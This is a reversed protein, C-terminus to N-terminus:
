SCGIRQSTSKWGCYGLKKTVRKIKKKLAQYRMNDWAPIHMSCAPKGNSSHESCNEAACIKGTVSTRAAGKAKAKPKPKGANEAAKSAATKKKFPKLSGTLFEDESDVEADRGMASLRHHPPHDIYFRHTGFFAKPFQHMCESGKTFM